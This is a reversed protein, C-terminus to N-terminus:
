GDIQLQRLSAIVSAVQEDTLQKFSPMAGPGVDLVGAIQEDTLNSAANSGPGLGPGIGGGLNSGHCRSCVQDILEEGSLGDTNGIGVGGCGAVTSALLVLAAAFRV